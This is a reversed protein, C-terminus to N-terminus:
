DKVEGTGYYGCDAYCIRPVKIRVEIDKKLYGFNEEIFAVNKTARSKDSNFAVVYDLWFSAQLM